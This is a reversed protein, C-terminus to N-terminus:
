VGKVRTDLALRDPAYFDIAGHMKASFAQLEQMAQQALKSSTADGIRLAAEIVFCGSTDLLKLEAQSPIPDGIPDDSISNPDTYIRQMRIIVNGYIFRHGHVFYQTKYKCLALNQYKELETPSADNESVPRSIVTAGPEPIQEARIHWNGSESTDNDLTPITRILQHYSLRQAQAPQRKAPARKSAPPEPLKAQAYILHQECIPVPQTGVVGALLNLVQNERTAPIQSFLIYEQM